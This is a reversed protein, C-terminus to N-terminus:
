ITSVKGCHKFIKRCCLIRIMNCFKGEWVSYSSPLHQAVAYYIILFLFSKM